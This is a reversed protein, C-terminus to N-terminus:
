RLCYEGNASSEAASCNPGTELDRFDVVQSVVRMPRGGEFGEVEVRLIAMDREGEEYRLDPELMRALFVKKDITTGGVTLLADDLLNLDV